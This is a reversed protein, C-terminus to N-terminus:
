VGLLYKVWDRSRISFPDQCHLYEPHGQIGLAKITGNKRQESFFVVEPDRNPNFGFRIGDGVTKTDFKYRTGCKTSAIVTSCNPNPIMMQHHYSNALVSDFSGDFPAEIGLLHNAGAHHNVDQVLWGGFMVCLFQAGRCIGLMPIPTERKINNNFLGIEWMERASLESQSNNSAVNNHGYIKPNIDEGGGFIILDIRKLVSEDLPKNSNMELITPKWPDFMQACPYGYMAGVDLINMNINRHKKM